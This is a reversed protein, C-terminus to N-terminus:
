NDSKMQQVYITRHFPPWWTRFTVPLFRSDAFCPSPSSVVLYRPNIAPAYWGFFHRCSEPLRYMRMNEHFADAPVEIRRENVYGATEIQTWGDYEFAGQIATKPVGTARIEDIALIRARNLAYWDHTSVISFLGFIALMLLAIVPLTDEIVRQYLKILFIIALPM